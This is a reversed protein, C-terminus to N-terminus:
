RLDSPMSFIRSDKIKKRLRALTVRLSEPERGMERAAEATSYGLIRLEILRRETSTMIKCLHEFQDEASLQQASEDLNSMNKQMDENMSIKSEIRRRREITRWVRAVKRRLISRAVALIHEVSNIEFKGARLGLWLSWHVSQILDETDVESRILNGVIRQATKRLGPEYFNILLTFAREDSTRSLDLLRTLDQPASLISNPLQSGPVKEIDIM